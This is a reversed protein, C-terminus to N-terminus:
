EAASVGLTQRMGMLRSKLSGDILKDGVRVILGGLIEPDVRYRVDLGAGHKTELTEILKSRHAESLPAASVVEVPVLAAEAPGFQHQIATELDGLLALDGHQALTYVLNRIPLDVDDPLLADILPQREAFDVDAAQVRALLDGDVLKEAAAGLAASWRERIAELFADAYSKARDQTSM